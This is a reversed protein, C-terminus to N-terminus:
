INASYEIGLICDGDCTTQIQRLLPSCDSGESCSSIRITQVFLLYPIVLILRLNYGDFLIM